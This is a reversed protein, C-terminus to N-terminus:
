NVEQDWEIVYAIKNPYYQSVDNPSDNWVWKSKVKYMVLYHESNDENNPEGEAWHTYEFEEGTLWYFGGDSLNHAGLWVAVITDGSTQMYSDIAVLVNKYEEESTITALHGGKAEAALKADNWTIDAHVVEYEHTYEKEATAAALSEEISQSEAISEEISQSEAISEEISEEISQSEAISEEISAAAARSEELSEEIAKEESRRIQYSKYAALAKGGVFWIAIALIILVAILRILMLIKDKTRYKM